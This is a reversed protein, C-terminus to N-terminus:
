PKREEPVRFTREEPVRFALLEKQLQSAEELAQLAEPMPKEDKADLRKVEFEINQKVIRILQGRLDRADVANIRALQGALGLRKVAKDLPENTDASPPLRWFVRKVPPEDKQVQAPLIVELPELQAPPLLVKLPEVGVESPFEIPLPESPVAPFKVKLRKDEDAEAFAVQFKWRKANQNNGTPAVQFKWPKERQVQNPEDARVVAQNPVLLRNGGVSGATVVILLV